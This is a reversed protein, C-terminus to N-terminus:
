RIGRRRRQVTCGALARRTPLSASGGLPHSTSGTSAVLAHAAGVGPRAPASHLHRCSRGQRLFKHHPFGPGVSKQLTRSKAPSSKCRRATAAFRRRRLCDGSIGHVPLRHFATAAARSYPPFNEASAVSKGTFRGSESVPQSPWAASASEGLWSVSPIEAQISASVARVNRSL